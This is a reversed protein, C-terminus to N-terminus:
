NDEFLFSGAADFFVDVENVLKIAYHGSPFQEAKDIAIDAFNAALHDTLATPLTSVAVEVDNDADEFVFAEAPDFYVNWENDLKIEIYGSAFVECDIITNSPYTLAIYDTITASLAECGDEGGDELDEFLFNGDADFWVETGNSLHLKFNGDDEVEAEIITADPYNAAVYSTITMPLETVDVNEEDTEASLFNGDADFYIELGNDLEVEITGDDEMEAETITADPYNMSIYDTVAAPLDGVAVPTDDDDGPAEAFLFNGDVDFYLDTGDSLEVEFAVAPNNEDSEVEAELIMVGPYNLDVYDQIAQPFQTIDDDSSNSSAAGSQVANMEAETSTLVDETFEKQCSTMLGAVTVALFILFVNKM